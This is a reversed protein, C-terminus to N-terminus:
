FLKAAINAVSATTKTKVETINQEPGTITFSVIMVVFVPILLLIFPSISAVKSVKKSLFTKVNVASDTRKLTAKPQTNLNLNKMTNTTRKEFLSM